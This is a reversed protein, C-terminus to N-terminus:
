TFQGMKVIKEINNYIKVSNSLKIFFKDEEDSNKVLRFILFKNKVKLCMVSSNYNQKLYVDFIKINKKNITFYERENKIECGSVIFGKIEDNYLDDFANNDVKASITLFDEDKELELLVGSETDDNQYIIQWEKDLKLSLSSNNLLIIHDKTELNVEIQEVYPLLKFQILRKRVTKRLAKMEALPSLVCSKYMDLNAYMMDIDFWVPIDNKGLTEYVKVGFADLVLENNSMIQTLMEVLSNKMALTIDFKLAYWICAHTVFYNKQKFYYLSTFYFYVGLHYQSRCYRHYQELIKKAREYEGSEFLCGLYEEYLTMSMPACKIANEFNLIANKYDEKHRYAVGRKLFYWHEIGFILKINKKPNLLSFIYFDDLSDFILVNKSVNFYNNVKDLYFLMGDWDRKSNKVNIKSELYSFIEKDLDLIKKELMTGHYIYNDKIYKAIDIKAFFDEETSSPQNLMDLLFPFDEDTNTLSAFFDALKKM